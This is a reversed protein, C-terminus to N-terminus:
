CSIFGTPFVAYKARQRGSSSTSQQAKNSGMKLHKFCSRLNAADKRNEDQGGRKWGARVVRSLGVAVRGVGGVAVSPPEGVGAYQTLQQQQQLQQKNVGDLM